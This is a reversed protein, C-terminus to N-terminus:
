GVGSCGQLHAIEAQNCDTLIGIHSKREVAFETGHGCATGSNLITGALRDATSIANSQHCCWVAANAEQAPDICIALDEGGIRIIRQNGCLIHGNLSDKGLIASLGPECHARSSLLGLAGTQQAQALEVVVGDASRIQEIIQICRNSSSGALGDHQHVACGQGRTVIGDRGTNGQQDGEITAVGHIGGLSNTYLYRRSPGNSCRFITGQSQSVACVQGDIAFHTQGSLM